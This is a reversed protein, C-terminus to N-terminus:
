IPHDEVRAVGDNVRILTDCLRLSSDRHAVILITPRPDLAALRTLLEGESAQDIANTAEDLVLLRPKRLLARAIALRQREGGSLLAGREGVVSDVGRPMRAVIATAGVMEIAAHMLDESITEDGWDLNRRVSDHFLFGDQPVYAIAGGWGGGLARGGITIRGQQPELLGTIIDVLTTKGGGSAGTLGTISGEAITLTADSVGGGGHHRYTVHSLEIPGAPPVEASTQAFAGFHREADRVAEFAPVGYAVQQISQQIAQAPGAMRGFVLVVIILRAPPVGLLNIGALVVGALAVAAGLTFWLRARAQDRQFGLQRRRAVSQSAAFEDVFRDRMQQAAAIKLGGLFSSANSMMNQGARLAQEGSNRNRAQGLAILMAGIVMAVGAVLALVPALAAIVALQVLTSILAVTMQILQQATTGIRIVDIGILTTTRSHDLAAIERWPAVALARLIRLRQADVFRAQLSQMSLDRAYLVMGRVVMMAMFAIMMWAILQSTGVIGWKEAYNRVWGPGGGTAVTLIPVLLLLGAGEVAAGGLALALAIATHRPSMAALARTIALMM